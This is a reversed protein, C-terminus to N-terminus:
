IKEDLSKFAQSFAENEDILELTGDRMAQLRSRSEEIWAREIESDVPDTEDILKQLLIEKDAESLEKVIREAQELTAAM